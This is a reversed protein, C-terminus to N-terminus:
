RFFVCLGPSHYLERFHFLFSKINGVQNKTLTLVCVCYLLLVLLSNFHWASGIFCLFCSFPIYLFLKSKFFEYFSAYFKASQMSLYANFHEAFSSALFKIVLIKPPEAVFFTTLLLYCYQFSSIYLQIHLQVYLTPIDDNQIAKSADLVLM